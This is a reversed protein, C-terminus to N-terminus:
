ETELNAIDAMMRANAKIRRLLRMLTGFDEESVGRLLRRYHDLAVPLAAELRRRGAASLRIVVARRDDPPSEREVLGQAAMDELLRGLSSRDLVTMDAIRGITEGDKDGLAALARWMPISLGLPRLAHGLNIQNQRQIAAFYHMPYDGIRYTEVAARPASAAARRPPRRSAAAKRPLAANRSLAKAM